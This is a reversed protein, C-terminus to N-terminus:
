GGFSDRFYNAGSQVVVTQHNGHTPQLVTKAQAAFPALAIALAIAPLLKRSLSMPYIWKQTSSQSRVDTAAKDKSLASNAGM